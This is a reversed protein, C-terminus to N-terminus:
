TEFFLARNHQNKQKQKKTKKKEGMNLREM